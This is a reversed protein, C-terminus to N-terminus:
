FIKYKVKSILFTVPFFICALLWALRYKKGAIKRRYAYFRLGPIFILLLTLAGFVPHYYSGVLYSIGLQIDLIVDSSGLISKLLTICFTKIKEGSSPSQYTRLEHIVKDIATNEEDNVSITNNKEMKCINTKENTKDDKKSGDVGDLKTADGEILGVVEINLNTQEDM